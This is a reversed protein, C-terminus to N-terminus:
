KTDPQFLKNIPVFAIDISNLEWSKTESSDTVEVQINRGMKNVPINVVVSGGTDTVQLTGGEVGIKYTGISDMGIGSKGTNGITLSRNIVLNGDVYVSIIIDGPMSGMYLIAELFFKSQTYDDIGHKPSKWQTDYATGSDTFVSNDFYSIKGDTPSGFYLKTEGNSDKFETFCSAGIDYTWWGSRLRDYVLMSNNSSAGGAKYSFYYRNDSYMACTNELASKEISKVAKDVRLSIVNTRLDIYNPEYGLSNVGYETFLYIDNEVADTASHSDSGRAPDVLEYSITAASDAAVSARYTTHNKTVFLYDQYKFISTNEQGDLNSIYVSSALTNASSYTFNGIYTDTGSRYLRSPYTSNGIAYLCNKYYIMYKAVVGNTQVRVTTGDYVKMADTGNSMFVYAGAQCFDVRKGTTFTGASAPYASVETATGTQTQYLKGNAVALLQCVTNGDTPSASYFTGLGEIATASPVTCLTSSGSRKTISAKGTPHVNNCGATEEKKLMTDRAYTNLGKGMDYIKLFKVKPM